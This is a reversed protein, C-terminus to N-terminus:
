TVVSSPCGMPQTHIMVFLTPMYLLIRTTECALRKRSKAPLFYLLMAAEVVVVVWGGVLWGQPALFAGGFVVHQVFLSPVDM